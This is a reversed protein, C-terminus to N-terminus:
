YDTLAEVIEPPLEPPERDPNFKAALYDRIEAVEEDTLQSVRERHRTMVSEWGGKEYQRLVIQVFAHCNMCNDMVLQRGEQCAEDGLTSQDECTFIADMDINQAEAPPAVGVSLFLAPLVPIFLRFASVKM